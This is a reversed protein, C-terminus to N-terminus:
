IGKRDLRRKQLWPWKSSLNCRPLAKLIQEQPEWAYHFPLRAGLGASGESSCQTRNPSGILRTKWGDPRGVPGAKRGVTSWPNPLCSPFLPLVRFDVHAVFSLPSWRPPVRKVLFRESRGKSSKWIARLAKDFSRRFPFACPLRLTHSLSCDIFSRRNLLRRSFFNAESM